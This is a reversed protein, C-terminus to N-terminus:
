SDCLFHVIERPVCDVTDATDAAAPTGVGTVTPRPTAFSGDRGRFHLHGMRGQALQFPSNSLGAVSLCPESTELPGM